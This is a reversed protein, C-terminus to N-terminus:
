NRHDSVEQTVEIAGDIRDYVIKHATLTKLSFPCLFASIASQWKSLVHKYVVNDSVM